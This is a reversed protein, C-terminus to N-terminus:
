VMETKYKEIQELTLWEPEEPLSGWLIKMFKIHDAPDGAWLHKKCRNGYGLYYDCDAKMRSLLMYRFTDDKFSVYKKRFEVGTM